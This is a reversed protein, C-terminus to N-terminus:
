KLSILDLYNLEIKEPMTIKTQYGERSDRARIKKLINEIRKDREQIAVLLDKQDFTPNIFNIKEKKPIKIKKLKFVVDKNEDYAELILGPLGNLKWPGFTSAISSAYWATYTRGRFKTKAKNCKIKNFTKIGKLLTWNIQPINEYLYYGRESKKFLKNTKKDLFIKHSITDPIIEERYNGDDYIIKEKNYNKYTYYAKNNNFNLKGSYLPTKSFKILMSYEIEAISLFDNSENKNQSFVIASFLILIITIKKM